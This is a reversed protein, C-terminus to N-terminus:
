HQGLVHHSKGGSSVAARCATGTFLLESVGNTEGIKSPLRMAVEGGSKQSAPLTCTQRTYNHLRTCHHGGVGDSLDDHLTNTM